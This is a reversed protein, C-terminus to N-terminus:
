RYTEPRPQPRSALAANVPHAADDVANRVLQDTSAAARGTVGALAYFAQELADRDHSMLRLRLRLGVVGLSQVVAVTVAVWGWVNM